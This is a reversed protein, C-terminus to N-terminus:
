SLSGASRTNVLILIGCLNLRHKRLQVLRETADPLPSLGVVHKCFLRAMQFCTKCESVFVAGPPAFMLNSRPSAMLTLEELVVVVGVPYM